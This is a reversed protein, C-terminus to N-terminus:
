ILPATNASKPLLVWLHAFDKGAMVMQKTGGMTVPEVYESVGAAILLSIPILAHAPVEFPLM